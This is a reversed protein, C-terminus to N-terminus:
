RLLFGNQLWVQLWIWVLLESFALGCKSDYLRCCYVSQCQGDLDGAVKGPGPLLGSSSQRYLYSRFIDYQLEVILWAVVFWYLKLVRSDILWDILRGLVQLTLYLGLPDWPWFPWFKPIRISWMILLTSPKMRLERTFPLSMTYRSPLWNKGRKQLWKKDRRQVWAGM